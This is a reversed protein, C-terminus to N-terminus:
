AQDMIGNDDIKVRCLGHVCSRVNVYCLQGAVVGIGVSAACGAGTLALVLLANRVLDLVGQVNAAALLADPRRCRSSYPRSWLSSDM